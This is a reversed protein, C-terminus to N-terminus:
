EEGDDGVSSVPCGMVADAVQVEEDSTAPQKVVYAHSGNEAMRFNEPAVSLCYKAAICNKDVYYKGEANNEWKLEKDAM